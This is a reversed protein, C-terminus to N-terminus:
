GSNGNLLCKKDPNNISEVVMKYILDAHITTEGQIDIKNKNFLMDDQQKITQNSSGTAADLAKIFDLNRALSKDHELQQALHSQIKVWTSKQFDLIKLNETRYEAKAKALKEIAQIEALQSAKSDITLRKQKWDYKMGWDKITEWRKIKLEKAVERYSLGQVCYLSEAKAVTQKDYAM